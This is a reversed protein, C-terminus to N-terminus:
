LTSTSIRRQLSHKVSQTLRRSPRKVSSLLLGPGARFPSASPRPPPDAAPRVQCAGDGRVFAARPGPSLVHSTGPRSAGEPLLLLRSVPPAAEECRSRASAASGRAGPTVAATVSLPSQGLAAGLGM